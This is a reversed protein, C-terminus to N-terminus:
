CIVSGNYNSFDTTSFTVVEGILAYQGNIEPLSGGSVMIKTAPNVKSCDFNPLGISVSQYFKKVSREEFEKRQRPNWFYRTKKVSKDLSYDRSVLNFQSDYSSFVSLGGTQNRFVDYGSQVDPDNPLILQVDGNEDM